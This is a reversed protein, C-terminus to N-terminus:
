SMVNMSKATCIVPPSFTSTGGALCPTPTWSDIAVNKLEASVWTARHPAAPEQQAVAFPGHDAQLLGAFGDRLSDTCTPVFHNKLGISIDGVAFNDPDGRGHGLDLSHSDM